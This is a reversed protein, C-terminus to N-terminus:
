FLLGLRFNLVNDYGMDLLDLMFGCLVRVGGECKKLERRERIDLVTSRLLKDNGEYCDLVRRLRGYYNRVFSSRLSRYRFMFGCDIYFRGRFGGGVVVSFGPSVGLYLGRDGDGRYRLGVVSGLIVSDGVVVNLGPVFRFYGSSMEYGGYVGYGGFLRVLGLEFSRCSGYRVFEVSDRSLSRLLVVRDFGQGLLVLSILFYCIFLLLFRYFRNGLLMFRLM